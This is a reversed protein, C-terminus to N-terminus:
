IEEPFPTRLSKCVWDFILIFWNDIKLWWDDIMLIGLIKQGLSQSLACLHNLLLFPLCSQWSAFFFFFHHDYHSIMIFIILHNKNWIVRLGLRASVDKALVNMWKQLEEGLHLNTGLIGYCKINTPWSNSLYNHRLVLLRMIHSATYSTM